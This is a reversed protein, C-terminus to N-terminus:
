ELEKSQHNAPSRSVQRNDGYCRARIPENPLQNSAKGCRRSCPRRFLRSLGQAIRAAATAESPEGPLSGLEGFYYHDHDDHM